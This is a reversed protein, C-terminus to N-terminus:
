VRWGTDTDAGRMPLLSVAQAQEGAVDGNSLQKSWVQGGMSTNFLRNGARGLPDQDIAIVEPNAVISAKEASLNRLDTAVLLPASWLSWFSYETRSDVFNLTVPFLTELFDPDM